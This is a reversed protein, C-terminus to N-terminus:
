HYRRVYGRKWQARVTGVWCSMVCWGDCFVSVHCSVSGRWQICFCSMAGWVWHYVSMPCSVGCQWPKCVCPMVGRETVTYQCLAHCELRDCYVSVPWWGVRDCYLCSMIEWGDCYVSVPIIVGGWWMICIYSMVDWGTVIYQLLFSLGDSWLICVCAMVGLGNSYESVHCGVGWLICVCLMVDWGTM